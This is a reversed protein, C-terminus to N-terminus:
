LLTRLAAHHLGAEADAALALKKLDESGGKLAALYKQGATKIPWEAYKLETVGIRSLLAENFKNAAGLAATATLREARIVTHRSVPDLLVKGLDNSSINSTARRIGISFLGNTTMNRGAKGKRTIDLLSPKAQQKAQELERVLRKNTTEIKRKQAKLRKITQNAALYKIALAKHDLGMLEQMLSCKSKPVRGTQSPLAVLQGSGMAATNNATAPETDNNGSAAGSAAEELDSDESLLDVVEDDVKGASGLSLQSRSRGARLLNTRRAQLQLEFWQRCLSGSLPFHGMLDIIIQVSM